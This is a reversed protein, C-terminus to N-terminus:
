RGRADTRRWRANRGVTYRKVRNHGVVRPAELRTWAENLKAFKVRENVWWGQHCVLLAVLGIAPTLLDQSFAVGAGAAVALTFAVHGLKALSWPKGLWLQTGEVAHAFYRFM